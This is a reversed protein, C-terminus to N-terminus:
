RQLPQQSKRTRDFRANLLFHVVQDIVERSTLLETHTAGLRIHDALSDIRTEDVTVSGDNPEPLSAIVRGLTTGLTGAIGGIERDCLSQWDLSFHELSQSMLGDEGVLGALRQMAEISGLPAGLSVVRGAPASSWESLMALTIVAGLGHAVFHVEAGARPRIDEAVFDRLVNINQALSARAIRYSIQRANIQYRDTLRRRMLSAERGNLWNGLVLVVHAPQARSM